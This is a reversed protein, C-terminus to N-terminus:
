AVAEKAVDNEGEYKYIYKYKMEKTDRDYGEIEAIERVKFDELYVITQFSKINKKAQDFDKYEGRM